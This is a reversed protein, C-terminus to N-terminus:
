IHCTDRHQPESRYWAHAFHALRAQILERIRYELDRGLAAAVEDSIGEYGIAEALGKVVVGTLSSM